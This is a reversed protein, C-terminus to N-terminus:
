ERAKGVDERPTQGEPCPCRSKDLSPPYETAEAGLPAKAVKAKLKPLLVETFSHVECYYKDGKTNWKCCPGAESFEDSTVEKAFKDLEAFIEKACEEKGAIYMKHAIESIHWAKPTHNNQLIDDIERESFTDSVESLVKKLNEREFGGMDIM